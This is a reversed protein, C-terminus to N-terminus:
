TVGYKLAIYNRVTTREAATLTRSFIITSLWLGSHFAGAGLRAGLCLTGVPDGAAPAAGANGTFTSSAKLFLEADPTNATAFSYDIYYPTNVTLVGTTGNVILLPTANYIRASVNDGAGGLIYTDLGAGTDNTTSLLTVIAALSSTSFVHFTECASGDHLLRWSSPPSNSNYFQGGAFSASLKGNFLASATPLVVQNGSTAQAMAHAATIAKIGTAPKVKDLFASVKGSVGDISYYDSEFFSYPLLNTIMDEIRGGGGGRATRRALGAGAMRRNFARSTLPHGM